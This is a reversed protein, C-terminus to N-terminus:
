IITLFHTGSQSDFLSNHQKFDFNFKLSDPELEHSVMFDEAAADYLRLIKLSVGRRFLAKINTPEGSIVHTFDAVAREHDGLCQYVAGRKIYISSDRIMANELILSYIGIARSFNYVRAYADAFAEFIGPFALVELSDICNEFGVIAEEFRGLNLMAISNYAVFLPNPRGSSDGPNEKRGTTCELQTYLGDDLLRAFEAQQAFFNM